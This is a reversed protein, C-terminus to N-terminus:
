RDPKTRHGGDYLAAFSGKDADGGADQSCFTTSTQSDSGNGEHQELKTTLPTAGDLGVGDRAQVDPEDGSRNGDM